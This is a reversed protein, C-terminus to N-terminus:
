PNEAPTTLNVELSPEGFNTCVKTQLLVVDHMGGNATDLTLGHSDALFNIYLLELM